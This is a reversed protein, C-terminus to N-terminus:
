TTVENVQRDRLKFNKKAMINMVDEISIPAYNHCDTGIDMSRANPDDPLSGHSHGYLHISGVHSKNWVRMAYHCLVFRTKIGDILFDVEFLSSKESGRFLTVDLKKDHNGLVIFIKGNLRNILKRQIERDSIFCFDGLHFVWDGSGVKNNWNEILTENMEEVDNFPRNCYKIINKHGFHTDSTFFVKEKSTDIIM